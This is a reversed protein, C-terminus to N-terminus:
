RGRRASWSTSNRSAWQSLSALVNVLSVATLVTGPGVHDNVGIGGHQATLVRHALVGSPRPRDLRADIVGHAASPLADAGAARQEPERGEELAHVPDLPLSDVVVTPLPHM